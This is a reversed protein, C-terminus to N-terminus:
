SVIDTTQHFYIIPRTVLVLCMYILLLPIRLNGETQSGIACGKEQFM